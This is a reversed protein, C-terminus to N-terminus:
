PLRRCFLPPKAINPKDPNLVNSVCLGSSRAHEDLNHNTIHGTFPLIVKNQKCTMGRTQTAPDPHNLGLSTQIVRPAKRYNLTFIYQYQPNPETIRIPLNPFNLLHNQPNAIRRKMNRYQSAPANRESRHVYIADHTDNWSAAVRRRGSSNQTKRSDSPSKM